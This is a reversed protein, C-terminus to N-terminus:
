IKPLHRSSEIERMSKWYYLAETMAKDIRSGAQKLIGWQNINLPIGRITATGNLFRRIDVFIHGEDNCVTAYLGEQLSFQKVFVCSTQNMDPQREDDISVQYDVPCEPHSAVSTVVIVITTTCTVLILIVSMWKLVNMHVRLSVTTEVSNQDRQM